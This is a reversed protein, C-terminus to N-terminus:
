AKLTKTGRDLQEMEWAVVLDIMREEEGRVRSARARRRYVKVFARIEPALFFSALTHRADDIYETFEIAFGTRVGRRADGTRQERVVVGKARVPEAVDPLEFQVLLETGLRMFFESELFIGGISVDASPLKAEFSAGRKGPAELRVKVRTPTRPYRRRNSDSSAKSRKNAM